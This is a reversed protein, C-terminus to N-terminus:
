QQAVNEAVVPPEFDCPPEKTLSLIVNSANDYMGELRKIQSLLRNFLKGEPSKALKAQISEIEEQSLTIM